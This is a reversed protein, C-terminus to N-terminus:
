KGMMQKMGATFADVNSKDIVKGPVIGIRTDIEVTQGLAVDRAQTEPIRLEAKLRKELVDFDASQQAAATSGAILVLLMGATTKM